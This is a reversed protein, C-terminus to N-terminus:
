EAIESTSRQVHQIEKVGGEFKIVPEDIKYFVAYKDKQGEEEGTGTAIGLSGKFNRHSWCSMLKSKYIIKRIQIRVRSKYLIGVPVLDIKMELVKTEGYKVM